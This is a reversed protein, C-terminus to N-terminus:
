SCLGALFGRMAIAGFDLSGGVYVCIYCCQPYNDERKVNFRKLTLKLISRLREEPFRYEYRGSSLVEATV